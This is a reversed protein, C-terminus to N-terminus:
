GVGKDREKIESRGTKEANDSAGTRMIMSEVKDNGIVDVSFIKTESM